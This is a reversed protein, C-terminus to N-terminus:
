EGGKNEGDENNNNKSYNVRYFDEGWHLRVGYAGGPFQFAYLDQAFRPYDLPIDKAKFLQVLGRAHQTLEAFDTATAAADFRRKIAQENGGGILKAAARGFSNGLFKGAEDKGSVNMTGSKGQRHLAYLTLSTHVAIEAYTPAGSRSYWTEPIEGLTIEWIDAVSGPAKGIGRRLKALMARSWPSERDLLAIKKSVFGYVTTEESM